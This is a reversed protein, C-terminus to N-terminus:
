KSNVADKEGGNRKIYNMEMLLEGQTKQILSTCSLLINILHFSHILFVRLVPLVFLIAVIVFDLVFVVSILVIPLLVTKLLLLVIKLVASIIFVVIAIIALFVVSSKFDETRTLM